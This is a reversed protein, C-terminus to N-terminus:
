TRMVDIFEIGYQRKLQQTVDTLLRDDRTVNANTVARVYRGADLADLAKRALAAEDASRGADDAMRRLADKVNALNGPRGDRDAFNTTLASVSRVDGTRSLAKNDVLYVTDDKIAVVDIGPKNTGDIDPKYDLVAYGNAALWDTAAREGFNGRRLRNDIDVEDASRAAPRIGAREAEEYRLEPRREPGETREADRRLGVALDLLGRRRDADAVVNGLAEDLVRAPLKWGQERVFAEPDSRLRDAAGAALREQQEQATWVEGPREALAADITLSDVTERLRKDADDQRQRLRDILEGRRDDDAVALAAEAESRERALREHEAAHFSGTEDVARQLLQLQDRQVGPSPQQEAGISQLATNVIDLEARQVTALQERQKECFADLKGRDGADVGRVLREHAEAMAAREQAHRGQPANALAQELAERKQDVADVLATTALNDASNRRTNQVSSM